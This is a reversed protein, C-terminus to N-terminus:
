RRTPQHTMGLPARGEGISDDRALAALRPVWARLCRCRMARLWGSPVPLDHPRRPRRGGYYVRWSAAVLSRPPLLRAPPIVATRVMRRPKVVRGYKVTSDSNLRPAM